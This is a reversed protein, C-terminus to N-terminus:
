LSNTTVEPFINIFGGVIKEIYDGSFIEIDYVGQIIPLDKTEEATFKIQVLGEHLYGAVGSPSLNLLIGTDSYRHKVSGRLGYGSINLYDGNDDKVTFKVVTQSGKVINLDYSTAM